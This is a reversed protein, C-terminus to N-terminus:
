GPFYIIILEVRSFLISEKRELELICNALELGVVLLTIEPLNGLYFFKPFFRRQRFFLYFKPFFGMIKNRKSIISIKYPFIVHLGYISLCWIAFITCIGPIIFYDFISIIIFFPNDGRFDGLSLFLISASKLM